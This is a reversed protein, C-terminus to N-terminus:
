NSKVNNEELIEPNLAVSGIVEVEYLDDALRGICIGKSPTMAYGTALGPIPDNKEWRCDILWQMKDYYVGGKRHQTESISYLIIDGGKEGVGGYIEKGNKDLRGTFMGVTAPDVEIFEQQDIFKGQSSMAIPANRMLICDRVDGLCLYDGYVWEKKGIPLGRFKIIM